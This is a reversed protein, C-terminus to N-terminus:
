ADCARPWYFPPPASCSSLNLLVFFAQFSSYTKVLKLEAQMAEQPSVALSPHTCCGALNWSATEIGQPWLWGRKALSIIPQSVQRDALLTVIEESIRKPAGMGLVNLGRM